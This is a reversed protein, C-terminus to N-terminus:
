IIDNLIILNTILKDLKEPAAEIAAKALNMDVNKSQRKFASEITKFLHPNIEKYELECSYRLENRRTNDRFNAIDKVSKLIYELNTSIEDILGGLSIKYTADKVAPINKWKTLELEVAVLGLEFDRVTINCPFSIGALTNIVSKRVHIKGASHLLGLGNPNHDELVMRSIVMQLLPYNLKIQKESYQALYGPHLWQERPHFIFFMFTLSFQKIEPFM